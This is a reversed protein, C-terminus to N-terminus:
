YQSIIFRIYILRKAEIVINWISIMDEVMHYLKASKWIRKGIEEQIKGNNTIKSGM